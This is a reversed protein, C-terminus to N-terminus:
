SHAYETAEASSYSAKKTSASSIEFRHVVTRLHRSLETVHHTKQTQATANDSTIEANEAMSQINTFIDKSGDAVNTISRSIENSTATQEEVASAITGFIENMQGIISGIRDIAHVASESDSQITEIRRSIDETARATEKALEKVENAVVAFGKGMEGARAAEITANLALLNTQQAISTIVKVVNGIDASSNGLKRIIHNTQDAVQVAENAVRTAEGANRSIEVISTSMQNVASAVSEVNQTVESCAKSVSDAKEFTITANELLTGGVRQMEEAAGSVYDADQSVASLSQCIADLAQDLAQSMKGLEDDSELGCRVSLKGEKVAHLVKVTHTLPNAVSKYIWSAIPLLFLI